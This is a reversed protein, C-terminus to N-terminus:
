VVVRRVGDVLKRERFNILLGTGCGSLRLYTAVQAIHVDEVKALCKLEVVVREEVLLDLRYAGPVRLLRYRLEVEVEQRSQMGRQELEYALCRRYASELLGPGLVRHVAIAAGIISDTLPDQDKSGEV